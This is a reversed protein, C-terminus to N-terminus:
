PECLSESEYIRMGKSSKTDRQSVGQILWIYINVTGLVSLWFSLQQRM